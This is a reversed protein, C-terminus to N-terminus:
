LNMFDLIYKFAQTLFMFVLILFCLFILIRCESYLQKFFDKIDPSFQRRSLKYFFSRKKINLQKCSLDYEKSICSCFSNFTEQSLENKSKLVRYCYEITDFLQTNIYIRNKLTRDIVLRVIESIENNYQKYLYPELDVFNPFNVLEYRITSYADIKNIKKLLFSGCMTIIAALIAALDFNNNM